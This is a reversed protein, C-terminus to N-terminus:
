ISSRSSTASWCGAPGARTWRPSGRNTCGSGPPGCGTPTAPRRRRWDARPQPAARRGARGAARRGGGAAAVSRRGRRRAPEALWYLEAGDALLRNTLTPATDAAHSVLWGGAAVAVEAAPWVPEAIRESAGAPPEALEVVEVGMSIPLSWSTVDYPPFIPGGRYPRVEPYRQPRLMTLLFARYPQRPPSSGPAPPSASDAPAAATRHGAGRPSRPAAAARGTPGGGGPRAPGAARDLRGSRRGRGSEIEGSASATSTACSRAATSRPRKSWRGPPWWNTTSSTACAGGAARGPLPSTPAGSTSPCGRAAAACSAPTSSLDALRHPRQGGRDAPRHREEVLRHQPHRGALLLRLDHQPRRRDQGGGRAPLEHQHRHPRGPPLDALPDRAGAPRDTAARVHAARDLGDPARRCLGPSVLPSLPRRQRGTVGEPDAHLLRPQQRARRLPPLAVADPRGRIRQGPAERVLRDGAGPRRPQDVAHAAPGRRGDLRHAASRNTTAFQWVFEMAMQTSGVETSHISCTVLVIAKGEAILDDALEPTLEDPNALRRAIERWRDQRELNAASSLVVVPIENGLTSVGASEMAVRDSAADVQRLYEVVRPWPALKRDAGVPHGLFAEPTPPEAAAPLAFCLSLVTVALARQM